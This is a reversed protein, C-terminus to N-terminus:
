NQDVFLNEQHRSNYLRRNCVVRRVGPINILVPFKHVQKAIQELQEVLLELGKQMAYNTSLLYKEQVNSDM